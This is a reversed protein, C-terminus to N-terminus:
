FSLRLGVRVERGASFGEVNGVTDVGLHGLRGNDATGGLLHDTLDVFGGAGQHDVFFQPHNLANDLVLSAAATFRGRTVLNRTLALSVVWTGPGVLSGRRANGLTGPAPLAYARPDFFAERSGGPRPDGVQDPRWAECFCGIGDLERATNAPFVPSTGYSFFPTLFHGSRAQVLASLRLGGPMGVAANLTLRHRPVYPDPGRDKEIDYPDYQIVGVTSNGTDPATGQSRALTYAAEFGLRGRFPRRLRLQLAHLQGEGANDVVDMFTGYLPFPLRARAAPDADVDGLPEAAARVTNRDSLVLLKRSTAGLYSVGALLGAPLERELTLHYQYVDPSQLDFA